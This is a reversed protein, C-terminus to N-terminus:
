RFIGGRRAGGNYGQQFGQQYAQRYQQKYLNKDGYANQYGRDPHNYGPGYVMGQGRARAAQGDNLGDQFGISAAPNGNAGYGNYGNNGNRYVNPNGYYGNNNGYYGNNSNVTGNRYGARYGAEYDARDRDNGWNGSRRNHQADWIGQQYARSSNNRRDHDRDHDRDRDRNWRDDRDQAVAFAPIALLAAGLMVNRLARM